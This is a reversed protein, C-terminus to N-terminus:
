KREKYVWQLTKYICVMGTALGAVVGGLTFWPTSSFYRDLYQGGYYGTLVTAAMETSIATALSIAQSAM